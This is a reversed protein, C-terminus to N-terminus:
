KLLISKFHQEDYIFYLDILKQLVDNEQKIYDKCSTFPTLDEMIPSIFCLGMVWDKFLNLRSLKGMKYMNNYKLMENYFVNNVYAKIDQHNFVQINAGNEKIHEIVAHKVYARLNQYKTNKKM